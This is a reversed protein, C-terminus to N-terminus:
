FLICCQSGGKPVVQNGVKDMTAKRKLLSEQSIKKGSQEGAVGIKDELGLVKAELDADDIGAGGAMTKKRKLAAAGGDYKPIQTSTPPYAYIKFGISGNQLEQCIQPTIEDIKHVM